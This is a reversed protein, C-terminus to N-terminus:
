IRHRDIRLITDSRTPMHDRRGMARGRMLAEESPLLRVTTQCGRAPPTAGRIRVHVFRPDDIKDGFGSHAEVREGNPMYVIPQANPGV